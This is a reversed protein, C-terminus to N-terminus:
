VGKELLSKVAAELEAVNTAANVNVSQLPGGNPGTQEMTAKPKYRPHVREAYWQRFGGQHKAKNNAENTLLKIGRGNEDKMVKGRADRLWEGADDMLEISESVAYDAYSMRAHALAEAFEPIPDRKETLGFKGNEWEYVTSFAPMHEDRCIKVINEGSALRTLLEAAMAENYITPRGRKRKVPAKKVAAPKKTAM